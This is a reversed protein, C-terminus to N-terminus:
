ILLCAFLGMILTESDTKRMCLRVMFAFAPVTLVMALDILYAWPSNRSNALHTIDWVSQWEPHTDM